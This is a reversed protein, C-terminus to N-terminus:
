SLKFDRAGGGGGDFYNGGHAERLERYKLWAEVPTSENEGGHPAIM